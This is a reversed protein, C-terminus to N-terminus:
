DGSWVQRTLVITIGVGIAWVIGAATFSDFSSGALLGAIITAVLGVVFTLMGKIPHSEPQLDFSSFGGPQPFPQPRFAPTPTTKFDPLSKDLNLKRQQEQRRNREKEQQWVYGKAARDQQQKQMDRLQQQSREQQQRMQEQQRRMQEQQQRRMMDQQQQQWQPLM